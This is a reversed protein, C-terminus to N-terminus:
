AKWNGWLWINSWVLALEVLWLVLGHYKRLFINLIPPAPNKKPRGNQNLKKLFFIPNQPKKEQTEYSTDYKEASHITEESNQYLSWGFSYAWLEVYWCAPLLFTLAMWCPDIYQLHGEIKVPLLLWTHVYKKQFYTNGLTILVWTLFRGIKNKSLIVRSKPVWLLLKDIYNYYPSPESSCALCFCYITNPKWVNAPGQTM